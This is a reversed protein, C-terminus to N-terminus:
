QSKFLIGIAKRVSNHAVAVQDIGMKLKNGNAQWCIFQEHPTLPLCRYEPASLVFCLLAICSPDAVKLSLSSSLSAM